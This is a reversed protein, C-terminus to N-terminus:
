ARSGAVHPTIGGPAISPWARARSLRFPRRRPLLRHRRTRRHRRSRRNRHSRRNPRLRRCPAFAGTRGGAAGPGPVGGGPDQHHVGRRDGPWGGHHHHHWAISALGFGVAGLVLGLILGAMGVASLVLWGPGRRRAQDPGPAPPSAAAQSVMPETSPASTAPPPRGGPEDAGHPPDSPQTMAHRWTAGHPVSLELM